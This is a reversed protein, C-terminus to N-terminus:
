QLFDGASFRGIGSLLQRLFGKNTVTTSTVRRSIPVIQGNTLDFREVNAVTGSENFSVAVVQRDVVQPAQWAYHRVRSRVYYYDGGDLVSGSSPVGITERLSDRTDVGIVVANLDEDSPVYGHNRFQEACGAIVFLSALAANRIVRQKWKAM